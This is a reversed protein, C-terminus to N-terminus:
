IREAKYFGKSSGEGKSLSSKLVLKWVIEKEPTVEFIATSGTILINGNALLNADRIPWEKKDNSIYEWIIENTDPNMIWVKNPTGHDAVLLTGDDLLMPDHQKYFVDKGITRLLEGQKNIEAIINFNRLSVLYTSNEGEEVANTHTWGQEMIDKYEETWFVDKAHWTWVINGNSDVEKLQADSPNDNAGFVILTNGNELRDADHSIKEDEYSWVIEKDRNIEYVGKGPLVTMITDNLIEIDWGPNTYSKLEEPLYYEWVVEGLMNVEVIRTHEPDHNDTFVTTGLLVKENDSVTVEFADFITVEFADDPIGRNINNLSEDSIEVGTSCGVLLFCLIIIIIKRM